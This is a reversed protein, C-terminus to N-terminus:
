PTVYVEERVVKEIRIIDGYRKELRKAHRYADDFSPHTTTEVRDFVPEYLIFETTVM